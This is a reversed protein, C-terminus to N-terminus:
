TLFGRGCAGDAAVWSVEDEHVLYAVDHPHRITLAAAPPLSLLVGLLVQHVAAHGVVLVHGGALAALRAAADRVRAEAAECSEGGPPTDTWGSRLAAGPPLVTDRPRGEWGGCSLEALGDLTLAPWGFAAAFLAATAVARGLPSTCVVGPGAPALRAALQACIERGTATLPSDGSGLVLGHENALTQAHRAVYLTM